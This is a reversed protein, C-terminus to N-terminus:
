EKMFKFTRAGKVTQLTLLYVGTKLAAVNIKVIRTGRMPITEKLVQTGKADTVTASIPGTPENLNVLVENRAPNPYLTGTQLAVEERLQQPVTVAKTVTTTSAPIVEVACILAKDLVSVFSLDLYGDSVTVNRTEVKAINKGGAAVFIDYNTLWAAGEATVNFVRSGSATFFLEALHLKVTYTANAVPIRYGFTGGSAYAKRYDQYLLDDTTNDIAATFTSTSTSGTFYADASFAGSSASIAGGGSNIRLTTPQSTTTTNPRLLVIKGEGGYESVYINGTKVDETLDLPDIFGSFGEIGSGETASTVDNSTGGTGLTMIDDHQSYRVVLLKGQLANNFANSKYEISGNPSANNQFDFSYGRWNVDPMTGVPYPSVQAPDIASTPNGGNMVYEGRQPNPHGYYGGQVVRFLFDKQTQQVNSLAPVTPGSYSSGDPRLTGTVSAPTNGGAASGNAAVYLSGNSHWVLDYANRIGSAYITLPAGAAYPNYTGGGEATKVNLPLSGLKSVDLRLVSASLLHEERYNWTQDAKGMASNSGQTFYLAKDPGFAISNALHDKASRPLNILVDQVTQLAPGSLKTLKGDWDPGDLFVYTSHTVWAILSTATSSPDFALGIALRQQRPGYADQLSYLLEPNGLTGNNNIAFRKIIGDITLAYLKGDPGITVSSHRGTANPLAIKDFKALVVDSTSSTATTFTSTYPLFSAGSLDKVGSTISFRYKTSLKLPAAPVLTIADGGGTGNVNSPVKVGTAEETLYVNASTITANNIGGNPLDLISTSISTNESINVSGDEPNVAVVSPRQSKSPKIIVYNIKTNIGGVADITLLGDAVAVTVTASKFKVTSTPVFNSVATVGEIRVAHKSDTQTGDGVSVTVDYIGNVVEAEWIGEIATGRFKAVDDGQMYIFTALLFDSPSKRKEGNKTLDLPTKNSQRLWGFTYGSEQYASTRQGFAQGYDRLWGVPPKTQADQFNVKFNSLAGKTEPKVTLSITLTGSVYGTASATVEAIYTGISLNTADFAFSIESGTTYNIGNLMKRNVSLWTPTNGFGDTATLKANVANNDSTAIYELLTESRGQEVETTQSTKTFLIAKAFNATITKNANMTITLPNATGTASGSWRTFKLGSAPTATLTVTSGSTYTAQAPNKTVTGSGSTTVILSYSELSEATVMNDNLVASAPNALNSSSGVKGALCLRSYVEPNAYMKGESLVHDSEGSNHFADSSSTWKLVAADPTLLLVNIVLFGILLKTFPM